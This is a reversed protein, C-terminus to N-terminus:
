ALNLESKRSFYPITQSTRQFIRLHVESELVGRLENFHEAEGRLRLEERDKCIPPAKRSTNSCNSLPYLITIIHGVPKQLKKRVFCDNSHAQKDIGIKGKEQIELKNESLLFGCM